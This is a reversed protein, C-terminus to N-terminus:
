TKVAKHGTFKEWREVAVDCYAPDPDIEIARCKRGIQESAIIGTGSGVYPDYSVDGDDSNNLYGNAYLEVPKM